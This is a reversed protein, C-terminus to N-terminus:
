SYKKVELKKLIEYQFVLDQNSRSVRAYGIRM